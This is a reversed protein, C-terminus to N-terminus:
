PTVPRFAPVFVEGREAFTVEVPMGIEVDEPVCDVITTVLRLDPQEELEVVALVFPVDLGPVWPQRNITLTYVHGRGSVASPAVDDSLCKPCRPSPPHIYYGCNACRTILLEGRQGGTWFAANDDTIQPVPLAM